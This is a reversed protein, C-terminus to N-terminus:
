KLLEKNEYINGIIEIAEWGGIWFNDSNIPAMYFCAAKDDWTMITKTGSNSNHLLDGEYILV